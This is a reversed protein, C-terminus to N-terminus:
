CVIFLQETEIPLILLCYVTTRNRYTINVFLIFLQETEIPLILLCYVTTRNRYTINVFVECM